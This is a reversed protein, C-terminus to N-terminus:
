SRPTAAPALAEITLPAAEVYVLPAVGEGLSLPLSLVAATPTAREASTKSVGNAVIRIAPADIFVATTFDSPAVVEIVSADVRVPKAVPRAAVFVGVLAVVLGLRFVKTTTMTTTKM